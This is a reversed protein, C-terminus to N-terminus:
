WFWCRLRVLSFPSVLGGYFSPSRFWCLVRVLPFVRVFDGCFCSSRLRRWARVISLLLRLRRSCLVVLLSFPSRFRRSRPVAARRFRGFRAWCWGTPTKLPSEITSSPGGRRGAPNPKAFLSGGGSVPRGTHSTPTRIPLEFRNPSLAGAPPIM